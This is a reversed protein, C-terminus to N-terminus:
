KDGEGAIRLLLRQIKFDTQNCVEEHVGFILRLQELMITVDAIEDVLSDRGCKGEPFHCIALLLETM